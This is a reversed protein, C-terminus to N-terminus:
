IENRIRKIADAFHSDHEAICAALLEHPFNRARTARRMLDRVPAPPAQLWKWTFRREIEQSPSPSREPRALAFLAALLAVWAVVLCTAPSTFIAGLM